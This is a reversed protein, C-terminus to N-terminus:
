LSQHLETLIYLAVGPMNEWRGCSQLGPDKKRGISRLGDQDQRKKGEKEEKKKLKTLCENLELISKTM